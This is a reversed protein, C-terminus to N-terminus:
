HRARVVARCPKEKRHAELFALAVARHITECCDHVLALLVFTSDLVIVDNGRNDLQYSWRRREIEDLVQGTAEWDDGGFNPIFKEHLSLRITSTDRKPEVWRNEGRNEYGMAEAVAIRLEEATMDSPHKM